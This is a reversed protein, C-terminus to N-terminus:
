KADGGIKPRLISSPREGNREEYMLAEYELLLAKTDTNGRFANRHFVEENDFVIESIGYEDLRVEVFDGFTEALYCEIEEPLTTTGSDESEDVGDDMPNRARLDKMVQEKRSM